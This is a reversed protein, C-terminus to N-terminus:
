DNHWSIEIKNGDPDKIYFSAYEGEEALIERIITVKDNKMKKYIELVEEESELCFGFHFWEPFNPLTDIPDVAILFKSKNKLFAGKGHDFIKEFGFYQHYFNIFLSLNKTGLHVHNLNM